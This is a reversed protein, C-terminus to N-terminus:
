RTRARRRGLAPPRLRPPSTRRPSVRKSRSIAVSTAALVDCPRRGRLPHHVPKGLLHPCGSEFEDVARKCPVRVADSLREAEVHCSNAAGTPPNRMRYRMASSTVITAISCRASTYRRRQDPGRTLQRKAGLIRGSSALAGPSGPGRVRQRCEHGARGAPVRSLRRERRTRPRRPSGRGAHRGRREPVRRVAGEPM